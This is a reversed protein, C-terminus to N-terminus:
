RNQFCSQHKSPDDLFGDVGDQFLIRAERLQRSLYEQDGSSIGIVIAQSREKGLISCLWRFVIDGDCIGDSIEPCFAGIRHDLFILDSQRIKELLVSLDRVQLTSIFVDHRTIARSVRHLFNEDDDIVVIKKMKIDRQNTINSGVEGNRPYLSCTQQPKRNSYLCKDTFKDFKNM